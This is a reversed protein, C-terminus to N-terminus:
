TKEMRAKVVLRKWITGPPTCTVLTLFSDGYDQELVSTNNPDVITIKEVVYKYTKNGVTVTIKDGPVLKYLKAFITKYDNRNYLQPLSSHGFVVANGKDPPIATGGYNVLHKAVNTDISSVLANEIDLSPISIKYFETKPRENKQYKYTPFWNVADEYNVGSFNESAQAILSSISQQSVVTNKPIPATVEQNAFTPAFYVQWSILPLFIYSAILGGSIVLVISFIKALFNKNIRKNKKYYKVM